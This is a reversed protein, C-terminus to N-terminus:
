GGYRRAIVLGFGALILGFGAAMFANGWEAPCFLALAGLAMFTLGMFPVIRISMAGGTVVATGFLLLWTGPLKDTLGAAYLAPTMVAGAVLPPMFGVAFKRNPASGLPLGKARSKQAIGIASLTLAVLAELCWVGIWGEPTTRRSALWCAALATAGIAMQAVGPVATFGAASEMTDRIFRINDIAREHLAEPEESSPLPPASNTM